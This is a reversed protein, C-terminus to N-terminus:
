KTKHYLYYLIFAIILMGISVGIYVVKKIFLIEKAKKSIEENKKLIEEDKKSIEEDKKSIEENKKSIEENKKEIEKILENKTLRKEQEKNLDIKQCSNSKLYDITDNYAKYCKDKYIKPIYCIILFVSDFANPKDDKFLKYSQDYVYMLLLKEGKKLTAKSIFSNYAQRQDDWKFARKHGIKIEGIISVYEVEPELKQFTRIMYSRKELLDKFNEAKMKKVFFDPEISIKNNIDKPFVKYDSMLNFNAYGDREYIFEFGKFVDDRLITRVKKEYLKGESTVHIQPEGLNPIYSRKKWDSLPYKLYDQKNSLLFNEDNIWDFDETVTEESSSIVSSSLSKEEM